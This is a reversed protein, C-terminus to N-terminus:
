GSVQVSGIAGEVNLNLCAFEDQRQMTLIGNDHILDTTSNFDSQNAGVACANDKYLALETFRHFVTGFNIGVNLTDPSWKICLSDTHIEPRDHSSPPNSQWPNGLCDKNVWSGIYGYHFRKELASITTDSTPAAFVNTVSLLTLITQLYM